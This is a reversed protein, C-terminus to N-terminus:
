GGYSHMGALLYNVGFYTMLIVAFAIVAAANFIRINDDIRRFLRLHLVIAYALISILAWTEKPDWGWYRGWSENAWVAGLFTGVTMLALGIWMSLENIVTLEAPRDASIGLRSGLRLLVLNYVGLMACVGFFGYAAVIVAVHFMLWPSKLVPVLVGIQPDMGSISSVFLMIGAFLTALALATPSRRAFLLGGCVSAWAVYVMTEYANSWPAFGGIHWRMSMGVMQLHFVILIAIGLGRATWKLWRKQRILGAFATVLMLAGLSLYLIRCLSFLDMRNYRLELNIKKFDIPFTSNAAQFMQISDIAAIATHADAAIGSTSGKLANLFCRTLSVADDHELLYAKNPELWRQASDKPLPYIRIYEHDFIAYLLNLQEDLRLLDKHFGNRRAIPLRLADDVEQQLLYSGNADFCDAFASRRELGYKDRLARNKVAFLPAHMWREPAAMVSLLFENPTYNAISKAKYIKRLLDTAFTNVPMIRGDAFQMPLAGFRTAAEKDVTNPPIVHADAARILSAAGLLIIVALVKPARYEKLMKRLRSFRSRPGAIFIIFGILLALYGAYTVTRGIVDRSASLITGQEDSDFSAQYLRWGKLDLVHNMFIKAPFSRGDVHVIVDSEFSSPRQSGPYRVLKFQRLEVEFPLRMSRMGGSSNISILNSREGERLHLQGEQGFCLTLSAGALIIIFAFHVILGGISMRRIGNALLLYSIFGAIIAILLLFFVPNLYILKMAMETGAFKEIVTALALAVAWLAM